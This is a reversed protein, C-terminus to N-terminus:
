EMFGTEAALILSVLLPHIHILSFIWKNKLLYGLKGEETKVASHYFHKGSNLTNSIVGGGVDFAIVLAIAIQLFNWTVKGTLVFGLLLVPIVLSAGYGLLKEEFYAGTGNVFDPKGKYDWSIRTEGDM